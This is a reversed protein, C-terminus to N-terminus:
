SDRKGSIFEELSEKADDDAMQMPPTKMLYASASYLAGGTKRDLAIKAARVADVVIGASNSKDDVELKLEMDFPRDGWQKGRLRIFAIKTNHLFEVYDSPGVHIRSKPLPEKM